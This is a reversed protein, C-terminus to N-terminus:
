KIGLKLMTRDQCLPLNSDKETLLDQITTESFTNITAAMAQDIRRHLPCLKRHSKLGLPCTEIREIPQFVTVVDLLTIKAPPKALSFGGSPGRQSALIGAKGLDQLVKSMYKAPVKTREAIDQAAISANPDLSLIVVARLGYETTQSFM